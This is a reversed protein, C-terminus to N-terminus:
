AQDVKEVVIIHIGAGKISSNINLKDDVNEVSVQAQPETNLM